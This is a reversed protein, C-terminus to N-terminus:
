KNQGLIASEEFVAHNVVSRSESTYIVHVKGDKTQIAFPYAATDQKKDVINRKHPYTKDNDTSISVTLLMRDLKSDNYVLLL